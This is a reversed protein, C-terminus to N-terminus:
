GRADTLAKGNELVILEALQERRETMLEFARHLVEGRKRPSTAAWGPLAASAADVAALGDEPSADAVHAIVDETAPDQVPIPEPRSATRWAGGIYLDTPIEAVWPRDVLSTM